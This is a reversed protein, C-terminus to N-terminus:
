ARMAERAERIVADAENIEDTDEGYSGGATGATLAERVTDCEYTTEGGRGYDLDITYTTKTETATKALGSPPLGRSM